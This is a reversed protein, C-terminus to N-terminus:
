GDARRIRVRRPWARRRLQRSADRLSEQRERRNLKTGQEVTFGHVALAGAWQDLLNAAAAYVDFAVARVYLDTSAPETAFTVLGQVPDLTYDGSSIVNGLRDVVSFNAGSEVPALSLRFRTTETTGGPQWTEEATLPQQWLEGRCADLLDQVQDDTFYTVAGVQYEATGAGTMQRVQAILTAM